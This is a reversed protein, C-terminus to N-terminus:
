RRGSESRARQIERHAIALPDDDELVRLGSRRLEEMLVKRDGSVRKVRMPEGRPFHLSFDVPLWHEQVIDGWSRPRDVRVLVPKCTRCYSYVQVEPPSVVELRYRTEHIAEDGSIRWTAQEDEEDGWSHRVARFVRGRDILYTSMSPDPFSKTQFFGLPHGAPCSLPEDLVVITDYMGMGIRRVYGSFDFL